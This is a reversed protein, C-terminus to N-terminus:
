QVFGGTKTSLDFHRDIFNIVKHPNVNRNFVINPGHSDLYVVKLNDGDGLDVERLHRSTNQGCEHSGCENPWQQAVPVADQYETKVPCHFHVICDKDPNDTFIQRQSQGGVSPKFGHAIVEDQNKSQIKVMGIRDLDNFNSKRISTAFENDGLKAAFHGATKGKFPKYAGSKICHNVVTRLSEPINEGNWDLATGEVVTSRTFHNQMRSTVMKVLLAFVENKDRSQGYCTEEPAVIMHSEPASSFVLNLSNSKLFDLGSLYANDKDTDMFGVAFIDKRLRRIKGMDYEPLVCNQIIVRTQPATIIEDLFESMSPASNAVFVKVQYDKDLGLVTLHDTFMKGLLDRMDFAGNSNGGLVYINKM